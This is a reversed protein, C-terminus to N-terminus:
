KIEEWSTLNENWKYKKEEDPKPIPAFFKCMEENFVWSSYPCEEYAKSIKNQKEMDSMNRTIWTDYCIGDIITYVPGDVVEYVNCYPKQVRIFKIFSSPLNQIDIEPYVQQLNDELIPHNIPFGDKIQIYLNM